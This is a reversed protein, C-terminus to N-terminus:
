SSPFRDAIRADAIPAANSVALSHSPWILAGSRYQHAAALGLWQQRQYVTLQFMIAPGASKQMQQVRSPSYFFQFRSAGVERKLWM